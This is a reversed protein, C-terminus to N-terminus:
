CVNGFLSSVDTYSKENLGGFVTVNAALLSTSLVLLALLYYKKM